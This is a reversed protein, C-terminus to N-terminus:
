KMYIFNFDKNILARTFLININTFTSQNKMQSSKLTVKKYAPCTQYSSTENTSHRQLLGQPLKVKNDSFNESIGQSCMHLMQTIPVRSYRLGLTTVEQPKTGHAHIM